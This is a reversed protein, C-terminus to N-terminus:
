GREDAALTKAEAALRIKCAELIEGPNPTEIRKCGAAYAELAVELMAVERLKLQVRDLTYQGLFAIDHLEPTALFDAEVRKVIRCAVIKHEESLYRSELNVTLLARVEHCAQVIQLLEMELYQFQRSVLKSTNMTVTIEKAGRRLADRAAYQKVATTSYGHPWDIVVGLAVPSVSWRESSDLDSPRVIVAALGHRRALNCGAAIADDTLEPALLPLELTKALDALTRPVNGAVPAAVETKLESM